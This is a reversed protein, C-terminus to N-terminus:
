PKNWYHLLTSGDTIGLPALAGITFVLLHTWAFFATLLWPLGGGSRLILAIAGFVLAALMSGVPGGAARQMHISASLKPENEPYVSIGFVALFGFHIGHMPYGTQRAAMAHSLNHIIDAVWYLLMAAFGGGIAQGTPLSFLTTGAISLLAWPLLIGGIFAIEASFHLAGIKGLAYRKSNFM